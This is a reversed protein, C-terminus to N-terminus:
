NLIPKQYAKSIPERTYCGLTAERSSTLEGEPLQRQFRSLSQKLLFDVYKLFLGEM